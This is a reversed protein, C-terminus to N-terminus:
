FRHTDSRSKNVEKEILLFSYFMKYISSRNLILSIINHIFILAKSTIM